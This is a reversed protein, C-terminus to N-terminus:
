ERKRTRPAMGGNLAMRTSRASGAVALLFHEMQPTFERREAEKQAFCVVWYLSSCVSSAVVFRNLHSFQPGMALHSRVMEVALSVISYFGLGTAIQMERDRWGISLLQSCGALLLFTFIRLISATQQMHILGRRELPLSALQHIGTFPWIAAGIAIILVAVVVLSGRPLSARLPRLVNWALEIQIGLQLTSDVITELLYITLYISPHFRLISYNGTDCLLCWVCYLFFVPMRRWVRTYLLLGVVAAEALVASFWLTNDLSVTAM